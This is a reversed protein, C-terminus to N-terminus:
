RKHHWNKNLEGVGLGYNYWGVPVRMPEQKPKPKEEKGLSVGLLIAGFLFPWMWHGVLYFWMSFTLLTLALIVLFSFIVKTVKFISCLCGVPVILCILLLHNVFMWTFVTGIFQKM